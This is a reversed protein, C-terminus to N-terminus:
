CCNAFVGAWISKRICCAAPSRFRWRCGKWIGCWSARRKPINPSPKLTLKALLELAAAESLVPLRYIDGATPALAIAVDNLRSTIIQACLQGGVRFPKAHEVQWVDDVILLM